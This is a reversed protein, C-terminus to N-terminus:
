VDAQANRVDGANQPSAGALNYQASSPPWHILPRTLEQVLARKEEFLKQVAENIDMM